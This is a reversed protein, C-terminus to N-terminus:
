RRGLVDGGHSRHNLTMGFLLAKKKFLCYEHQIGAQIIRDRIFRENAPDSAPNEPPLQM